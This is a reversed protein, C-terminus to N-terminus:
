ATLMFFLYCAAAGLTLSCHHPDSYTGWSRERSCIRETALPPNSLAVYRSRDIPMKEPVLDVARRLSFQLNDFTSYWGQEAAKFEDPKSRDLFGPFHASIPLLKYQGNLANEDLVYRRICHSSTM